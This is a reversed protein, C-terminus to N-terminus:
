HSEFMMILHQSKSVDSIPRNCEFTARYLEFVQHLSMWLPKNSQLHGRM